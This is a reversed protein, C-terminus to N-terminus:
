KTTTAPRVQVPPPLGHDEARECARQVARLQVQLDDSKVAEEWDEQRNFPSHHLASCQWLMHNFTSREEGCDPCRPDVGPAYHSLRSRSPFSGTQLMRLVSAQPRGLKPHPAPFQRRGLQYHATIDHFTLLPDTTRDIGQSAPGRLGARNVLGRAQDHALENPNISGPSVNRGMHAPFWTIVHRVTGPKRTRLVAAAEASVSGALFAMAASRSDTFIQTRGPDCLALAVAVQEAVSATSHQISAANLLKGQPDVVTAAYSNSRPYQAADVFSALEPNQLATKILARARAARRAENHQPHVNRPFTSVRFADREEQQLPVACSEAAMATLGAMELIRRGSKSASLRVIQATKQAEVIESLTNHVGLQMLKDTSTTVPIGLVRKISKRILADIKNEESRSWNLASAVYNIHSMLFAHYIRLLNAESIGGRRSTVRSVLRLMNETKARLRAITQMNSGKANIVLGLVRLYDVRPIRQGTKTRLDIPVQDLPMDFKRGKRDPRYLLLESKTPSLVLGTGELFKETVDLAEQLAQEVAADSGGGCWITIDDAYLAHNLNVGGIRNLRVSLDRMAINFLLPSLVAGQPTGRAGLAYGDSKIEGLKITAKRDRLFSSVYAHFREGLNLSSVSDLVHKHKVTDFAKAIDLALIGRVDRTVVDVIQRKILLMVEQTSLSPRFGVMNPPLLQREEVYRSIRNHIVHEAVKGVCSTLSIPRLSDIAPTKGPKPILIVTAEKWADPVTGAAWAENIENTLLEISDDDLNRLLRNSIGDPGPASRGNLGQLVERVESVSFPADLDEDAKGGYAPYDEPGSQGIPLYRRAVEDMVENTSAGESSLKHVLRDIALTHNRKSQTDDLLQKLLNWKGGARMQGDVSACIENWQQQGLEKCHLEIERNLAAIRKRLNRNLKQTKWRATLSNKAEVLHALRADMRDLKLDTEVTKTVAAVDKKLKAVLDAFTEYEENDDKRRKRFADWDVIKFARQTAACVPLSIEVIYHDSGLNEQLNHWEARPANKVFALDPTTDRSISNGMRTPYHPDTILELSSDTVAQMLRCGKPISRVYGWAEHPANFDGAMVLPTERAKSSAKTTLSYFTQRNDRPSCYVNMVYVSNKLWSNPIIEVLSAELKTNGLRLDHEQFACKKAILTAIGHGNEALSSVARYGPLTITEMGTEQLLIVHPREQPERTKIFQVLQPRRRRFSACNWQWVILKSDPRAMTPSTPGSTPQCAM